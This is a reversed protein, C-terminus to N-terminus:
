KGPTGETSATQGLVAKSVQKDLWEALNKFVDAGGSVNGPSEFDIRMTDPIAAAADTGINAIANILTNIDAPTANPNY